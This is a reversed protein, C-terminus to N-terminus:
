NENVKKLVGLTERAARQWSFKQVQKIGEALLRHRLQENIVIAEIGRKISGVELPDVYLAAEGGVEPLSTSSSTLVASGCAMAELVPLGFGEYLSPFVLAQAGGYLGPLDENPVHGLFKVRSQVGFKQPAQYIPEALWGTKGAIVLDLGIKAQSFAEILRVLNKRPQVTGVFILYGEKLNYKSRVNEIEAFDPKHFLERDWAEYIVSIREEPVSMKTVLDQKTARSVAILHSAFKTVFETSRNLYLKQPFQHYEQLFEAGLDHITVVTKLGPRHVVPMTHAPIFLVDPPSFLVETALGAQTWLRPLPIRKAIVNKRGLAFAPPDDRLYLIYENSQDIALLERLLNFSYNETGTKQALTIKSADIGIKM